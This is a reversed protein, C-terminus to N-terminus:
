NSKCHVSKMAYNASLRLEWTPLIQHHFPNVQTTEPSTITRSGSRRPSSKSKLIPDEAPHHSASPVAIPPLHHKIKTSSRLITKKKVQFNTKTLLSHCFPQQLSTAINCNILTKATLIFLSCSFCVGVQNTNRHLLRWFLRALPVNELVYACM